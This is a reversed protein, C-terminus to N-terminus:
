SKTMIEDIAIQICYGGAEDGELYSQWKIDELEEIM